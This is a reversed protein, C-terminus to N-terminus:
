EARLVVANTLYFNSSIAVQQTLWRNDLLRMLVVFAKQLVTAKVRALRSRTAPLFSLDALLTSLVNTPRGLRTVSDIRFRHSTALQTVGHLTLRRFDHPEMHLPFIFPVTLVVLGGSNVLRRLGDFAADIDVVHELVETCLIVPYPAHPTPANELTSLIDVSGSSNQVVDMGVYRSGSGEIVGRFPQEGCGVDLVERRGCGAETALVRALTASVWSDIHEVTWRDRRDPADGSKRYRFSSLSDDTMEAEWIDAM